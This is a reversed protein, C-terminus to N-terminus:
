SKIIRSDTENALHHETVAPSEDDAREDMMSM